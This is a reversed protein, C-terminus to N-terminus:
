KEGDTPFQRFFIFIANQENLLCRCFLFVIAWRNLHFHPKIFFTFIHAWKLKHILQLVNNNLVKALDAVTWFYLFRLEYFIFIALTLLMDVDIYRFCWVTLMWTMTLTSCSSPVHMVFREAVLNITKVTFIQRIGYTFTLHTRTLRVRM